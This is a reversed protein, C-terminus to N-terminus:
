KLRGRRTWLAQVERESSVKVGRKWSAKRTAGALRELSEIDAQVVRERECVNM